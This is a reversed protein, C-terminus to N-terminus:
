KFWETGLKNDTWGNPSTAVAGIPVDLDLLAPIPGASLIFSPPVTLGSPSICKIITVLELNDSRVRYFHSQKTSRLHYYKKSRKRGGGLQLGKEDMNWIHQPPLEPHADFVTKLLDFFGAVNTANFNQARKPDLNGPRSTRLEPHRSEFRRLWNKGPVAGSLEFALGQIAHRDYPKATLAQHDVWDVLV